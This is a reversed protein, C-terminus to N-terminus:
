SSIAFFGLFGILAQWFKLERGFVGSKSGAGVAMNKTKKEPLVSRAESDSSSM